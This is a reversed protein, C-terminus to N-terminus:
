ADGVGRRYWRISAWLALGTVATFAILWYSRPSFAWLPLDKLMSSRIIVMSHYTPSRLAITKGIESFFGVPYVFSSLTVIAAMLGMNVFLGIRRLRTAFMVSTSVATLYGFTLLVIGMTHPSFHTIRYGLGLSVLQFVSLPVVLLLGFALLKAGVAYELRTTLAVRDYVSRERHLAYPIYVFSLLVVIGLLATPVLYESLTQQTGIRDHDVDITAPLQGDVEDALAAETFNAPEQFPALRQDSVITMTANEDHEFLGPPVVLVMYVEERELATTAESRTDYREPSAYLATGGEIVSLEDDTVSEDEATVGVPIAEPVTQQFTATGIAAAAPLLILILVFIAINRRVGFYERALFARLAM